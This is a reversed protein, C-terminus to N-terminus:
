HHAEKSHVLQRSYSPRIRTEKRIECLPKSTNRIRRFKLINACFYFNRGQSKQEGKEKGDVEEEGDKESKPQAIGSKM